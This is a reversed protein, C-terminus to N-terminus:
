SIEFREPYNTDAKMLVMKLEIDDSFDSLAPLLDDSDSFSWSVSHQWSGNSLAQWKVEPSNPAEADELMKRKSNPLVNPRKTSWIKSLRTPLCIKWNMKSNKPSKSKSTGM